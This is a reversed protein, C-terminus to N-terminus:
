ESVCDVEFKLTLVDEMLFVVVVRILCRWYMKVRDVFREGGDTYWVSAGVCGSLGHRSTFVEVQLHGPM